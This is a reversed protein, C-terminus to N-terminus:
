REFAYVLSFGEIELYNIEFNRVMDDFCLCAQTKNEYLSFSAVEIHDKFSIGKENQIKFIAEKAGWVLTLARVYDPTNKKNLFVNEFKVFKDAIRVIKERQLEMDIGVREESIIIAAFHHSHTISIFLPFDFYPKGLADYHLDNDTFGMEKLLMRVSLFARRHTESKMGELRIRTKEKLVVQRELEDFSETIKWILLQTTENVPIKKYLPM